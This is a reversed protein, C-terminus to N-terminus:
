RPARGYRWIWSGRHFVAVILKIVARTLIKIAEILHYEAIVRAQALSLDEGDSIVIQVGPAKSGRDESQFTVPM